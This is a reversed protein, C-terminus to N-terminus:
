STTGTRSSRGIWTHDLVDCSRWRSHPASGCWLGSSSRFDILLHGYSVVFTLVPDDAPAALVAYVDHFTKTHSLDLLASNPQCGQHSAAYLFTWAMLLRFVLIFSRETTSQNM